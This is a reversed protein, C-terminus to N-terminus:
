ERTRAFAQDLDATLDDIHECGVSFRILTPPITEQGPIAARREMTSEVGGLSTAHNIIRVAECIATTRQPSGTTEFSIMAGWGHMFKVANAHTDHSALGPFRVRAVDPSAELWHALEIANAQAKDMRLALTRAGRTALFAEIAGITAGHLLRREHFEGHLDPSTTILVGALLDSHGGIFKTASHMVVDAGLELPRQVLPTAFTSDVAVITGDKRPAACIAPLDCVTMLPNAPTELWLLDATRAAEIWADTDDLELRLIRWRGQAEAEAALGKVGHYPDTPIALTAGVPLRNLVAAAAGMGTAFALASGGELGGILSEFADSTETGKARSYDREAPLYYNSALQPAVNLPRGPTRDRGGAILWTSADVQDPGLHDPGVHDPRPAEGSTGSTTSEAPPSMAQVTATLRCRPAVNHRHACILGNAVVGRHARQQTETHTVCKPGSRLARGKDAAAVHHGQRPATGGVSAEPGRFAM